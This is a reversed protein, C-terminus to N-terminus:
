NLLAVIGNGSRSLSFSLVHLSFTFMEGSRANTVTSPAPASLVTTCHPSVAPMTPGQARGNPVKAEAVKATLEWYKTALFMVKLTVITRASRLVNNEEKAPGSM